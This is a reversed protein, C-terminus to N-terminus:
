RGLDSTETDSSDMLRKVPCKLVKRDPMVALFKGLCLTLFINSFDYLIM